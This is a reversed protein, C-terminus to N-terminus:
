VFEAKLRRDGIDLGDLANRVQEANKEPVIIYTGRTLMRVKGIDGRPLDTAEVVNKMLASIRLGDKRGADIYIELDGDENPIAETASKRKGMAVAEPEVLNKGDTEPTEKSPTM